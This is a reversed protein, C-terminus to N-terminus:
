RILTGIIMTIIYKTQHTNFIYGTVIYSTVDEFIVILIKRYFEENKYM